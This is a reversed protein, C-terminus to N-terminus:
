NPSKDFKGFRSLVTPTAIITQWHSGLPNNSSVEKRVHLKGLHDVAWIGITNVSIQKLESGNPPQVSMWREGELKDETIGM